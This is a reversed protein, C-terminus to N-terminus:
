PTAPVLKFTHEKPQAADHAKERLPTLSADENRLAALEDDTPVDEKHAIGTGGKFFEHWQDTRDQVIAEVESAQKNQPLDPLSTLDIGSELQARTFVGQPQGDVLLQYGADSLKEGRLTYKDLSGPLPSIEFAKRAADPVPWPLPSTVKVEKGPRLKIEAASAPAGWTRLIASAMILQGVEGPHVGDASFSYKPDTKRAEGTAAVMPANMDVVPIHREAGLKKVFGGYKIMVDNYTPEKAFTASVIDFMTPTMLTIRVGPLKQQLEDVIHTLGTSYAQFNADNYAKYGGDNTGLLITVATPKYNLVDRKLRLEIDGGGGGSVKDGGWGSNIFKVHMSPFRTLVYDEIDRGFMRQEVISAGYFVVTDGDHLFFSPQKGRAHAPPAFAPMLLLACLARGWSVKRM